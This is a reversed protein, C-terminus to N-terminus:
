EKIKQTIKQNKSTIYGAYKPREDDLIFKGVVTKLSREVIGVVRAEAATGKLRNAPKKIVAEVIDGDVAYGVDGRGIFLDDEDDDVALFGFGAKNARFTGTVTVETKATKKTRLSLKGSDDFRILGQSELYSIDKILKPFAKSGTMELAAALDNVSSKGEKKLYDLIREKM